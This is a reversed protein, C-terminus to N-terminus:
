IYPCIVALGLARHKLIQCYFWSFDSLFNQFIFHFCFLVFFGSYDLNSLTSSTLNVLSNNIINFIVKAINLGDMIKNVSQCTGLLVHINIEISIGYNWYRDAPNLYSRKWVSTSFYIIFKILM